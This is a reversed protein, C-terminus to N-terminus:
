IIDPIDIDVDIQIDENKEEKEKEKETEKNKEVNNEEINMEECKKIEKKLGKNLYNDKKKNGKREDLNKNDVKIINEKKIKRKKNLMVTEEKEEKIEINEKINEKNNNIININELNKYANNLYEKIKKNFDFIELTINNNINNNYEDNNLEVDKIKLINIICEAKFKLIGDYLYFNNLFLFLKIRNINIINKKICIEIINIIIEKINEEINFVFKAFPPLIILDIIGSLINKNNAKRIKGTVECYNYLLKLYEILLMKNEDSKNYLQNKVNAASFYLENVQILTKDNIQLYNLYLLPFNNYLNKYIILDIDEPLIDNFYSIITTFFSIIKKHLSFNKFYIQNLLIKNIL